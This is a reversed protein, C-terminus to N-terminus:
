DHGNGKPVFDNTAETINILLTMHVIDHVKVVELVSPYREKM